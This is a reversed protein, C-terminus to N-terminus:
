PPVVTDTSTSFLFTPPTQLTVNFEGSLERVLEPSPDEGLLNKRSGGHTYEAILLIVPYALVVFDPRLSARDSPHPNRIVPILIHNPLLHWIAV